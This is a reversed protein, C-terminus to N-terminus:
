GKERGKENRAMKEMVWTVLLVVLVGFLTSLLRFGAYYIRADGKLTCSVLIFTM